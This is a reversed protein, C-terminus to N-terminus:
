LSNAVLVDCPPNTLIDLAIGGLKYPMLKPRSHAGIAILEANLGVAERLLRNDAEGQALRYHFEPQEGATKELDFSYEKVFKELKEKESAEIVDGTYQTIKDGIDTDPIDYFHVLNVIGKPALKLALRLAQGSGASFNTGVLLNKYEGLPKDKVMLVPLTGKRIVKEITTGIFKDRLKSKGHMGMVILEADVENALKIIEAFPEQNEKVTITHEVNILEKNSALYSNMKKIASLNPSQEMNAKSTLSSPLCVHLIHLTSKLSLALKVAREFARDTEGAIDTALLINRM